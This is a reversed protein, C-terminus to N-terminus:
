KASTSRCPCPVTSAVVSLREDEEVFNRMEKIDANEDFRKTFALVKASNDPYQTEDSM